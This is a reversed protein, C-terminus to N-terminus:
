DSKNTKDSKKKEKLLKDSDSKPRFALLKAVVQEFPLPIHPKEKPMPGIRYGWGGPIGTFRMEKRRAM